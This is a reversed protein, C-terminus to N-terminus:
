SGAARRAILRELVSALALTDVPKGMYHDWGWDRGGWVEADKAMSTVVVVPVSRVSNARVWELVTLGSAKPMGM